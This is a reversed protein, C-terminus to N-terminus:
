LRNIEKLQFIMGCIYQESESRLMGNWVKISQQDYHHFENPSNNMFLSKIAKYPVMEVFQPAM